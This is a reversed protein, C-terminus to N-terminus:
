KTIIIYTYQLTLTSFDTRAYLYQSKHRLSFNKKMVFFSFKRRNQLGRRLHYGHFNKQLFFIYLM